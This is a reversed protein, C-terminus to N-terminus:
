SAQAAVGPRALRAPEATPAPETAPATQPQYSLRVLMGALPWYIFGMQDTQWASHYFMWAVYMFTTAELLRGWIRIEPDPSARLVRGRRFIMWLLVLFLSVGFYGYEILLWIFSVTNTSSIGWRSYYTMRDSHRESLFSETISGPGNGLWFIKWSETGLRIGNVFKYGREFRGVEAVEIDRQIARPIQTIFTLPNKGEYWHGSRLVFYDATIMVVAAISFLMIAMLPRRFLEARMMFLLLVPMFMFYMKAEGMFPAISVWGIFFLYGIRVRGTEIM